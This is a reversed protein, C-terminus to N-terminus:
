DREGVSFCTLESFDMERMFSFSEWCLHEKTKGYYIWQLQSNKLCYLKSYVYAQNINDKLSFYSILLKSGYLQFTDPKISIYEQLPM